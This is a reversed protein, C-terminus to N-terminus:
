PAPRGANPSTFGRGELGVRRVIAAFRATHRVQDLRRDALPILIPVIEGRALGAEM